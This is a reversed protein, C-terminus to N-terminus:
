FMLQGGTLSTRMDTLILTDMIEGDTSLQPLATHNTRLLHSLNLILRCGQRYFAILHDAQHKSSAFNVCLLGRCLSPGGEM